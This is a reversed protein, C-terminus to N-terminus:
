VEGSGSNNVERSAAIGAALPDVWSHGRVDNRRSACRDVPVAGAVEDALRAPASTAAARTFILGAGRVLVSDSCDNSGLPTCRVERKVGVGVRPDRNVVAGWALPQASPQNKTSSADRRWGQCTNDIQRTM